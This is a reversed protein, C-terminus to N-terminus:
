WGFCGWLQDAEEVASNKLESSDFCRWGMRMTVAGDTEGRQAWALNEAIVRQYVWVTDHKRPVNAINKM